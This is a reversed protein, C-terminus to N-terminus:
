WRGAPGLCRVPGVMPLTLAALCPKLTSHSMTKIDPVRTSLAAIPNDGGYALLSARREPGLSNLM